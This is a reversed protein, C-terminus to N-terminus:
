AKIQLSERDPVTEDSSITADSYELRHPLVHNFKLARTHLEVKVRVGAPFM